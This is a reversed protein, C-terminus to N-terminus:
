SKTQFSLNFANKSNKLMKEIMRHGFVNFILHLGCVSYLIDFPICAKIKIVPTNSKSVLGPDYNSSWLGLFKKKLVSM